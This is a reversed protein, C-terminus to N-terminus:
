QAPYMVRGGTTIPRLGVVWPLQDALGQALQKAEELSSPSYHGLKEENQSPIDIISFLSMMWQGDPRMTVVYHSTGRRAHHEGQADESWQLAITMGNDVWKASSLVQAPLITVSTLEM